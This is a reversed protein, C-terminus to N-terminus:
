KAYNNKEFIDSSNSQLLIGPSPPRSLSKENKDGNENVSVQSKQDASKSKAFKDNIDKMPPPPPFQTDTNSKAIVADGKYVHKAKKVKKTSTKESKSKSNKFPKTTNKGKGM